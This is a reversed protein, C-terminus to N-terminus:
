LLLDTIERVAGNGGFNKTIYINGLAKISLHANPVTVPHGVLNLCAIDNIDDGMYITNAKNAKYKELLSSLIKIKNRENQFVEISPFNKKLMDIAASNEGSIIAFNIGKKLIIAIAMIDKYDITKSTKGDSYVNIKGDTFIGDFDCVILEINEFSTNTLNNM